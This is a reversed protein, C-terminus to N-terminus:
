YSVFATKKPKNSKLKLEVAWEGPCQEFATEDFSFRLYRSYLPLLGTDGKGQRWPANILYGTTQRTQFQDVALARDYDCGDLSVDMHWTTPTWTVDYPWWDVSTIVQVTDLQITVTKWILQPSLLGTVGKGVLHYDHNHHPAHEITPEYLFSGVMQQQNLGRDTQMLWCDNQFFMVTLITEDESM